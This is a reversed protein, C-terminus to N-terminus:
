KSRAPEIGGKGAAFVSGCPSCEKADPEFGTVSTLLVALRNEESAILKDSDPEHDSDGKMFFTHM